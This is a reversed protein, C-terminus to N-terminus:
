AIDGGIAGIMGNNMESKMKLAKRGGVRRAAAFRINYIVDGGSAVANQSISHYSDGSVLNLVM